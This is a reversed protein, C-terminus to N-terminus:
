AYPDEKRKHYERHRCSNCKYSVFLDSATLEKRMYSTKCKPCVPINMSELARLYREQKNVLHTSKKRM